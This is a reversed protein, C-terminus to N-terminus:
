KKVCDDVEEQLRRVEEALKVIADALITLHHMAAHASGTATRDAYGDIQQRVDEVSAFTTRETAM